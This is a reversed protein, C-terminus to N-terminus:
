IVPLGSHLMVTGPGTLDVLPFYHLPPFAPAGGYVQVHVKVGPQIVVVSHLPARVTEGPKLTFSLVNGRSQIAIKGPGDFRLVSFGYPYMTRPMQYTALIKKSVTVSAEMAMLSAEHLFVTKGEAIPIVRFEGVRGASITASGPGELSEFYLSINKMGLQKYPNPFTLQVRDVKVGPDRYRVQDIPVLIKEGPGMVALLAPAVDGVHDLKVM